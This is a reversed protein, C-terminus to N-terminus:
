EIETMLDKEETIRDIIEDLPKLGKAFVAAAIICAAGGILVTHPAGIRHALAGAILSGFPAMGLFAMTFFSMVRGRKDDDVITQVVTNSSANQLTLGLGIGCMLILSIAFFRSLSFLVLCAGFLSAATAILRKLGHAKRRSALYFTGLLAGCGSAGMLFGLTRADGGLVERAFIPLLVTYPMGLLSITAILLIINRIPAFGFTYAIGERVGEVFGGKQRPGEQRPIIMASLAAIVFLYSLANIAFCAAEGAAGIIIGAISPGILGAAHMMASNLAIANGLDTKGEIMTIIFAQRAPLDIANVIGLLLSLYFLYAFTISNTMVMVALIAAQLTALVQTVILMRHLNWRDVLVGSFPALVFSPIMSAFGVQGLALASGTLRYALWGIAVRQMWTGVLSITQGGFFLRYNRYRLARLLFKPGGSRTARPTEDQPNQM